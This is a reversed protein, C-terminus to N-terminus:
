VVRLSLKAREGVAVRRAKIGFSLVAGHDELSQVTAPLCLGKVLSSTDAADPACPLRASHAHCTPLGPVCAAGRSYRCM